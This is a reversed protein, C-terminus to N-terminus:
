IQCIKATKLQKVFAGVIKKVEENKPIIVVAKQPLFFTSDNGYVMSVPEPILYIKATTQSFSCVVFSVFTIVLVIKKM